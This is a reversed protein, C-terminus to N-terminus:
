QKEQRQQGDVSMANENENGRLAAVQLVRASLVSKTDVVRRM